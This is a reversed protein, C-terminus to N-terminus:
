MEGCRIVGGVINVEVDLPKDVCVDVRGVEWVENGVVAVVIVIVVVHLLWGCCCGGWRVSVYGLLREGCWVVDGVVEWVEYGVVSVVIHRYERWGSGDVAFEGVIFLFGAVATGQYMAYVGNWLAGCAEGGGSM